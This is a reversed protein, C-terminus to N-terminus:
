ILDRALTKEAPWTNALICHGPENRSLGAEDAVDCSRRHSIM